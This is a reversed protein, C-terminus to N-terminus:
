ENYMCMRGNLCVKFFAYNTCESFKSTELCLLKGDIVLCFLDMELSVLLM